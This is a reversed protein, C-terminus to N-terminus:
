DNVAPAMLKATNARMFQGLLDQKAGLLRLIDSRYKPILLLSMAGPQVPTIKRISRCFIKLL